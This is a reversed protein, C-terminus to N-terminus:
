AASISAEEAIRRDELLQERDRLRAQELKKGLLEDVVLDVNLGNQETGIQEFSDFASRKARERTQTQQWARAQWVAQAYLRTKISATGREMLEDIHKMVWVWTDSAIEDETGATTFADGDGKSRHNVGLNTCQALTKRIARHVTEKCDRHITAIQTERRRSLIRFEIASELVNAAWRCFAGDTLKWRQPYLQLKDALGSICQEAEVATLDENSALAADTIRGQNKFYLQKVAQNREPTQPKAGFM